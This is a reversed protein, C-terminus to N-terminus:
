AYVYTGDPNISTITVTVGEDMIWVSQGIKYGATLSTRSKTYAKGGVSFYNKKTSNNLFTEMLSFLEFNPNNYNIVNNGVISSNVIDAISDTDIANFGGTNLITNNIIRTYNGIPNSIFIVSDLSDFFNGSAELKSRNTVARYVTKFTNNTLLVKVTNEFINVAVEGGSGEFTNGSVTIKGNITTITSQKFYNNKIIVETNNDGQTLISSGPMFVNSEIISKRAHFAALSDTRVVGKFTNGILTSDGANQLIDYNARGDFTCGSVVMQNFEGSYTQYIHTNTFTNNDCEFKCNVININRLTPFNVAVGAAFNNNFYCGNITIDQCEAVEGWPEIDIGCQPATGKTNTFSSNIVKIYRGYEISMGQRRNNDCLVNEINIYENNINNYSVQLNIGDGWCNTINVDRININQSGTIALGYGWEGGTDTHDNRDGLINGGSISVNSAEYTRLINYQRKDNPIAKLFCGKDMVLSTNNKLRVGGENILYNGSYEDVHAKIMFIGDPINVTTKLISTIDFAKQIALTDDTIGDGKAGFWTVSIAGTFNRKFYESGLKRYIVGDCKSDDMPSGDAFNIVKNYSITEGTFKDKINSLVVSGDAYDTRIYKQEAM